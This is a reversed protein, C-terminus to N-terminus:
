EDPELFSGMIVKLGIGNFNVQYKDPPLFKIIKGRGFMKHRCYGNRGERSDPAARRAYKEQRVWQGTLSERLEAYLDADLERVFPSAEAAVNGGLGRDYLSVPVCLGLYSKARTCAVYMLRREEEYDEARLVAHRSPFRDKVLDLVFVAGWELGKASHITSLTVTERSDEKPLPDNLSLDALFLDLHSYAAAMQELEALEQERRPYDEPHNDRLFPQYYEVTKEMLASPSLGSARQADLFELHERLKPFKACVKDISGSDSGQLAQYLKRATKAGIGRV